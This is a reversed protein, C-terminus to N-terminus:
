SEFYGIWFIYGKPIDKRPNTIEAPTSGANDPHFGSTSVTISRSRKAKINYCSFKFIALTPISSMTLHRISPHNQFFDVLLLNNTAINVSLILM